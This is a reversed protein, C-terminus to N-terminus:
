QETIFASFEIRVQAIDKDTKNQFSLIAPNCCYQMLVAPPFEPSM